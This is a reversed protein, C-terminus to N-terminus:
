QFIDFFCFGRLEPFRNCELKKFTPECTYVKTFKISYSLDYMKIYNHNANYVNRNIKIRNSNVIFNCYTTKHLGTKICYTEAKNNNRNITNLLVYLLNYRTFRDEYKFVESGLVTDLLPSAVLTKHSGFKM